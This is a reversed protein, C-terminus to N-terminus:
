VFDEPKLQKARRYAKEYGQKLAKIHSDAKEGIHAKFRERKSPNVLIDRSWALVEEAFKPSTPKYGGKSSIYNSVAKLAEPDFQNFLEREVGKAAKPGYHKDVQNLLYHFAEHQVTSDVSQGRAKAQEPTLLATAKLKKTPARPMKPKAPKQALLQEYEQRNSLNSMDKNSLEYIKKYWESYRNHYDNAIAKKKEEHEKMKQKYDEDNEEFKSRLKGALAAAKPGSKTKIHMGMVSRGFAGSVKKAWTDRQSQQSYDKISTEGVTLKGSTDQHMQTHKIKQDKYEGAAVKRGFLDKQRGSEILQVEQDPRTTVKPFNPLSIRPRSMKSLDQSKSLLHGFAQRFSKNVKKSKLLSRLTRKGM